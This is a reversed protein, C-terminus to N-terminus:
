RSPAQPGLASAAARHITGALIAAGLAEFGQAVYDMLGTFTDAAPAASAINV